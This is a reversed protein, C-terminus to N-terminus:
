LKGNNICLEIIPELGPAQRRLVRGQPDLLTVTQRGAPSTDTVQRLAGDYTRTYTRGNLTVTDTQDILSLLNNPDSLTATRTTTLTSTLGSPTRITLSSPVPAQM